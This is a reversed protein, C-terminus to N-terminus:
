EEEVIQWLDPRVVVCSRDFDDNRYTPLVVFGDVVVRSDNDGPMHLVDGYEIEVGDADVPCDLEFDEVVGVAFAMDDRDVLLYRKGESVFMSQRLMANLVDLAHRLNESIM